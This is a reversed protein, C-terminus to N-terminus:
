QGPEVRVEGATLWDLIDFTPEYGDAHKLQRYRAFDKGVPAYVTLAVPEGLSGGGNERRWACQFDPQGFSCANVDKPLPSAVVDVTIEIPERVNRGDFPTIVYGASTASASLGNSLVLAFGRGHELRKQTETASVADVFILLGYGSLLVLVSSPIWFLKRRM